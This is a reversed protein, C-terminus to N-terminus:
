GSILDAVSFSESSELATEAEAKKAASEGENLKETNEKLFKETQYVLSDGTNRTQAEEHRQKDEDAHAEADKMMREIEDTITQLATDITFSLVIFYM